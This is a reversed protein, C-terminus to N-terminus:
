KYFKVRDELPSFDKQEPASTPKGFPMEGRLKWGSPINWEKSVESDILPNYHQLSIGLGESSLANWINIQLMGSAQESWVPFNDKYLSFKQQLAKVVNQDEFFLITGYGNKFSNIKNETESFKEKPVIKRLEEKAIDWVKDHEKGLLVVVRSSQSNFASPTNKVAFNIIEKLRNDSITSEKSIGYITRRNEVAEYFSKSM